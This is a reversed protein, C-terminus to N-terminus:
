LILSFRQLSNMHFPILIWFIYLAWFILCWFFWNVRIPLYTLCLKWFFYLHGIFVHLFVWCKWDCLFHWDFYCQFKVEDLHSQSVDLFSFCHSNVLICPHSSPSLSLITICQQHSLLNTRISHFDTHFNWLFSFNSNANPKGMCNRPMYEFSHLDSLVSVCTNNKKHWL